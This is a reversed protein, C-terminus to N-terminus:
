LGRLDRAITGAGSGSAAPPQNKNVRALRLARASGDRASVYRAVLAFCQSTRRAARVTGGGGASSIALTIFPCLRKMIHQAEDRACLRSWATTAASARNM